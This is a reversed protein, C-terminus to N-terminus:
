NMRVAQPVSTGEEKVKLLTFNRYTKCLSNVVEHILEVGQLRQKHANAEKFAIRVKSEIQAINLPEFLSCFPLSNHFIPIYALHHCLFHHFCDEAVQIRM